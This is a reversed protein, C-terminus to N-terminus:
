LESLLSFAGRGSCGDWDDGESEEEVASRERALSPEVVERALPPAPEDKVEPRLPEGADGAFSLGACEHRVDSSERCRGGRDDGEGGAVAVAELSAGELEGRGMVRAVLRASGSLLSSAAAAAMDPLTDWSASCRGEVELTLSDRFRMAAMLSERLRDVLTVSDKHREVLRVSVGVDVCERALLTLSTGVYRDLGGAAGALLVGAAGDEGM